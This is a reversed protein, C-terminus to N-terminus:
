LENPGFYFDCYLYCPTLIKPKKFDRFHTKDLGCVVIKAIMPELNICKEFYFGCYFSYAAVPPSYRTKKLDRFHTKDLGCVVIKAIM